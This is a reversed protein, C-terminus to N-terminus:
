RAHIYFHGGEGMVSVEDVKQIKQTLIWDHFKVVVCPQLDTDVFAPYGRGETVGVFAVRVHGDVFFGLPVFASVRAENDELDDDLSIM